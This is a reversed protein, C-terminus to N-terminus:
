RLTTSCSSLIIYLMSYCTYQLQKSRGQQSDTDEDQSVRVETIVEADHLLIIIVVEDDGCEDDEDERSGDDDAGGDHADDAGAAVAATQESEYTGFALKHM